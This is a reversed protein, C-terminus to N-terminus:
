LNLSRFSMTSLHEHPFKIRKEIKISKPHSLFSKNSSNIHFILIKNAHQFLRKLNKKPYKNIKWWKEKERMMLEQLLFNVSMRSLIKEMEFSIHTILFSRAISSLYFSPYAAALLSVIPFKRKHFIVIGHFKM